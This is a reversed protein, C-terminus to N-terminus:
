KIPRISDRGPGSENIDQSDEEIVDDKREGDHGIGARTGHKKNGSLKFKIWMVGKAFSRSFRQLRTQTKPMTLRPVAYTTLAIILIWGPPVETVGRAEFYDKYSNRMFDAENLGTQSDVRPEWEEGGILVGMRFTIGAAVHAAMDPTMSSKKVEGAPTQKEREPDQVDKKVGPGPKPKKPRAVKSQKGPKKVNRKIAIKGKAKGTKNLRPFGAADDFFHIDPNFSRGHKDTLGPYKDVPEAPEAPQEGQGQGEDTTVTHTVVEQNVVHDSVESEGDLIDDTVQDIGKEVDKNEEAM